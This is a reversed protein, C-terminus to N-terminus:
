REEFWNKHGNLSRRRQKGSFAGMHEKGWVM